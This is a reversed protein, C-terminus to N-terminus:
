DGGGAPGVYRIICQRAPGSCERSVAKAEEYTSCTTLQRELAMHFKGVPRRERVFVVFRDDLIAEM